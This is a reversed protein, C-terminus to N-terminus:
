GKQRRALQDLMDPLPDMLPHNQMIVDVGTKGAEEKYHRVSKLYAALGEDSVIGPTLVTGGYIGAM